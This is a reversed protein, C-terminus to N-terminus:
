SLNLAETTINLRNKQRHLEGEAKELNANVKKSIQHTFQKARNATNNALKLSINTLFLKQEMTLRSRSIGTVLRQLLEKTENFLIYSTDNNLYIKKIDYNSFTGEIIRYQSLTGKNIFPNKKNKKADNYKKLAEYITDLVKISPMGYRPNDSLEFVSNYLEQRPKKKFEKSFKKSFGLLNNKAFKKVAVILYVRKIQSLSPESKLNDLIKKAIDDEGGSQQKGLFRWKWKKEKPYYVYGAITGNKLVRKGKVRM